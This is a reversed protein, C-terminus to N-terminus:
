EVTSNVENVLDFITIYRHKKKLKKCLYNSSKNDLDILYKQVSIFDAYMLRGGGNLMVAYGDQCLEHKKGYASLYKLYFIEYKRVNGFKNSITLHNGSVLTERQNIEIRRKERAAEEAKIKAEARKRAEAEAAKKKAEEAAKRKAEEVAKQKAEEARKEYFLNKFDCFPYAIKNKVSVEPLDYSKYIPSGDAIIDLGFAIGRGKLLKESIPDTDDNYKILRYTDGRYSFTNDTRNFTAKLATIFDDPLAYVTEATGRFMDKRMIRCCVGEFYEYTRVLIGENDLPETCIGCARGRENIKVKTTGYYYNYIVDGIIKNNHFTMQEKLSKYINKEVHKQDLWSSIIEDDSSTKYHRCLGDLYGSRFTIEYINYYDGYKSEEYFMIIWMGDRKGNKYNGRIAMRPFRLGHSKYEYLGHLTRKGSVDEYYTYRTFGGNYSNEKSFQKLQQGSVALAFMIFLCLICIKKM